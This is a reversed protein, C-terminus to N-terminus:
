RTNLEDLVVQAEGLDTKAVLVRVREMGSVADYTEVQECAIDSRHLMEQLVPVQYAQVTTLETLAAPDDDVSGGLLSRIRDLLSM